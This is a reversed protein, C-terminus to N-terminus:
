LNMHERRVHDDLPDAVDGEISNIPRNVPGQGTGVTGRLRGIGLDRGGAVETGEKGATTEGEETGTGVVGGVGVEVGAIMDVIYM